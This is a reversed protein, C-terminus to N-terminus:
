SLSPYYPKEIRGFVRFGLNVDRIDVNGYLTIMGDNRHEFKYYFVYAGAAALVLLLLIFIRRM